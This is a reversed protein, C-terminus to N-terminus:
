RSNAGGLPSGRYRNFLRTHKIEIDTPNDTNFYEELVLLLHEAEVPIEESPQPCVIQGTTEGLLIGTWRKASRSLKNIWSQLLQYSPLNKKFTKKLSKVLPLKNILRHKLTEYVSIFAYQSYPQCFSPLISIYGGSPQNTCKFVKIPIRFTECLTLIWRKYFGHGNLCRNGDLCFPCEEPPPFYNNKGLAAYENATQNFDRLIIITKTQTPRHSM